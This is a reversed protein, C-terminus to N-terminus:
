LDTTRLQDLRVLWVSRLHHPVSSDAVEDHRLDKCAQSSSAGGGRPQARGVPPAAGRGGVVLVLRCRARCCPLARLMMRLLSPRCPRGSGNSISGYAVGSGGTHTQSSHGVAWQQGHGLSGSARLDRLLGYLVLMSYVFSSYLRSRPGRPWLIKSRGPGTHRRRFPAESSGFM